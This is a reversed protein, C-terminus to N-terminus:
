TAPGLIVRSRVMVCCIRYKKSWDLYFLRDLLETAVLGLDRGLKLTSLNKKIFVELPHLILKINGPGIDSQKQGYCV